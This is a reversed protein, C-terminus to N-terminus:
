SRDPTVRFVNWSVAPMVARLSGDGVTADPHPRPAVRDPQELTNAVRWDDDSLVTALDLRAGPFTRLDLTFGVEESPHRNVAFIVLENREDDYTAVADIVPVEGYRRTDYTPATIEGLLVEGKALAAMQAFPHFISQRWAPGGPETRISGIANVLQAQCAARVRDSNRLLTVLLSGVVVADAVTYADESLRPAARWDKPMDREHMEQVYWVNWEDFSIHIRKTSKLRAGVSDATAVVDRIFAEMNVSSATFSALDDGQLEYYAHASVFDVVDYTHELVTAEWTGFTPMLRSSSGCAVLELSPDFQRMARATEAALRGYEQATKHGLQWPGDMENGLCWMRVGHPEKSGHSVRLDSLYTGDPHNCYELLDIAEAIGRTGLNVALMMEVDAKAAWRAFENLGFENTEITRWAPDLRTPRDAAPGVGDEWRYGSVFNGGPYRVVTVGLERVLDLVDQRLGDSDASPHGPEYIGTYVNRGMHEVFSGFTRRNVPAVVFAPDLHLSANIM